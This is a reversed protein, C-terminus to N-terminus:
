VEYKQIFTRFLPVLACCVIVVETLIPIYEGVNFIEVKGAGSEMFPLLGNGVISFQTCFIPVILVDFNARKDEYKKTKSWVYGGVLYIALASLLVWNHLGALGRSSVFGVVALATALALMTYISLAFNLLGKM